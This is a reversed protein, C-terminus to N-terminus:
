IMTVSVPANIQVSHRAHVSDPAEDHGATAQCWKVRRQAFAKGDVPTRVRTAFCTPTSRSNRVLSVCKVFSRPASRRSRTSNISAISALNAPTSIVCSSTSCICTTPSRIRCKFTVFCTFGYGDRSCSRFCPVQHLTSWQLSHSINPPRHGFM